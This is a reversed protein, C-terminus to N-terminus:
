ESSNTALAGSGARSVMCAQQLAPQGQSGLPARSLPAGAVAGAGIAISAAVVAAEPVAALVLGGGGFPLGESAHFSTSPPPASPADGGVRTRSAVGGAAARVACGVSSSSSAATARSMSSYSASLASRRASAARSASSLAGLGRLRRFYLGLQFRERGLGHREVAFPAAPPRPTHQPGIGGASVGSATGVSATTVAVGHLHACTNWSNVSVPPRVARAAATM